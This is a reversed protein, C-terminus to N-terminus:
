ITVGAKILIPILAFALPVIISYATGICKITPTYKPHNLGLSQFASQFGHNLHFGIVLMAIPYIIVHIISGQYTNIVINFLDAVQSGDALEMNGPTVFYKFRFFDFLHLVLFALIVIGFPGMYKSNKNEVKSQSSMAYATPRAAKNAMVVQIGQVIHFIFGLFLIVESAVILKNHKMFHAYTNFAIGGDDFLLAINGALHAVLFIVLFLGTTAMVLKKGLSSNLTDTIWSM